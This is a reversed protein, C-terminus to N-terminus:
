AGATFTTSRSLGTSLVFQFYVIEGEDPIKDC